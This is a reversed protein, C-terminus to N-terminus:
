LHLVQLSRAYAELNFSLLILAVEGACACVLQQAQLPVSPGM